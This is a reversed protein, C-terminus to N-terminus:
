GGTLERTFKFGIMKYILKAVAFPSNIDGRRCALEVVDCGVVERAEFITQLLELAEDWGMGGPEPTGTGSVVSWDFVDVDLTIFVKEPLARLAAKLDFRGRRWDRMTCFPLHEKKVRLAEEASMSRIGIQLTDPTIERIRAMACAHSLSRGEYTDRLDAHADLQIVGFAPYHQSVARVFGSSISHDGGVVVVFKGRALLEETLGTMLGLMEVHDEPVKPTDITAIGMRVPEADLLEDYFEVQQSAKLV